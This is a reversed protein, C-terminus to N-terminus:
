KGTRNGGLIGAINKWNRAGHANVIMLLNHDEEVTWKSNYHRDARYKYKKTLPASMNGMVIYEGTPSDNRDSNEDRFDHPESSSLEESDDKHRETAEVLLNM